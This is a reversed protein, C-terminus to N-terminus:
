KQDVVKRDKAYAGYVGVVSCIRQSLAWHLDKGKKGSLSM